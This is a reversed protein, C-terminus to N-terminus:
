TMSIDFVIRVKAATNTATARVAITVSPITSSNNDAIGLSKAHDLLGHNRGAVSEMEPKEVTTADKESMRWLFDSWVDLHIRLLGWLRYFQTLECAFDPHM